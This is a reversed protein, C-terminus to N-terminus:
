GAAYRSERMFRAVAVSSDTNKMTGIHIFKRSRVYAHFTSSPANELIRYVSPATSSPMTYLKRGNM